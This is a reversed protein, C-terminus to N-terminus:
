VSASKSEEKIMDVARWAEQLSFAGSRHLKLVKDQDSLRDSLVLVAKAARVMLKDELAADLDYKYADPDDALKMIIRRQELMSSM